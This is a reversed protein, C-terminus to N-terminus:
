NSYIIRFLCICEIQKRVEKKREKERSAKRFNLNSNENWKNPEKKLNERRKEVEVNKAFSFFINYM